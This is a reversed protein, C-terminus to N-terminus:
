LATQRVRVLENTIRRRRGIRQAVFVEHVVVGIRRQGAEGFREDASARSMEIAHAEVVTGVRGSDGGRRGGARGSWSLWLAAIRKSGLGNTGHIRAAAGYM